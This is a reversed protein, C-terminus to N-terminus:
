EDDGCVKPMKNQITPRLGMVSKIIIQIEDSFEYEGFPITNASSFL